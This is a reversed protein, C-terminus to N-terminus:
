QNMRAQGPNFGPVPCGAADLYAPLLTASSNLFLEATDGIAESSLTVPAPAKQENASSMGVVLSRQSKNPPSKPLSGPCLSTFFARFLLRTHFGKAFLESRFHM